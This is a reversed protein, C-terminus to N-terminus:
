LVQKSVTQSRKGRKPTRLWGIYNIYDANAKLDSFDEFDPYRKLTERVINYAETPRGLKLLMRVHTDKIYAHRNWDAIEEGKEIVGLAANLKETDEEDTYTFWCIQNTYLIFMDEEWEKWSTKGAFTEMCHRAQALMLPLYKARIETDQTRTTMNNWMLFKWDELVTLVTDEFLTHTDDPTTYEINGNLTTETEQPEDNADNYNIHLVNTSAYQLSPTPFELPLMAIMADIQTIALALTQEDSIGQDLLTDIKAFFHYTSVYLSKFSNIQLSPM